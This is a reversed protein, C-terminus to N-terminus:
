FGIQKLWQACLKPWTRVHPDSGALGMGHQGSRYVHLEFPVHERTLAAAFLLSNEVPVARDDSTHWLFAPPTDKTVQTENSLSTRLDETPNEGILHVMSGNHRHPGFTIVPYCLVMADPRCSQRDVPDDAQPDGSDYHTGVTAALHGGASFGLIGVREPNILWESARCRVLRVARQADRLPWPHRYPVVRYNLVFASIGSANLWCAVPEAEHPARMRYGGGPCIIVAGRARRSSVCYATLTPVHSPAATDLGPTGGPWLPIDFPAAEQTQM